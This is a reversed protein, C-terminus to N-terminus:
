LSSSYPLSKIYNEMFQWDPNGDNDVPLKIKSKNMRSIVWKRGYNYRYKEKRILASLFLGVYKNMDFKPSFISVDSTSCFPIPQYFSEAVSGNNNVGITNGQHTPNLNTFATHGNNKDSSSIVPNKGYSHTDKLLPGKGRRIDFLADYTFYKWIKSDLKLVPTKLQPRHANDYKSIDFNNVWDPIEDISPILLTRLTKNAQRGYNYRYKNARICACYYLKQALTLLETEHLCFIHYGTYFQTPQIFTELVSGGLAVTIIGAQYPEIDSLINVKASVGNNKSQRSVFNIGQPKESLKNLSLGNGYNVDFIKQLEIMMKVM